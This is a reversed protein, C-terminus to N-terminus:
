SIRSTPRGPSRQLRQTSMVRIVSTIRSVLSRQDFAYVSLDFVQESSPEPPPTVENFLDRLNDDAAM